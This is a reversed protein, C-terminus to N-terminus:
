IYYISFLFFNWWSVGTSLKKSSSKATYPSFNHLVHAIISSFHFHYQEHVLFLSVYHFLETEDTPQFQLTRLFTKTMENEVNLTKVKKFVSKFIWQRPSLSSMKHFFHNMLIFSGIPEQGNKVHHLIPKFSNTNKQAWIIPSM